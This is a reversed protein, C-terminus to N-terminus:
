TYVAVRYDYANIYDDSSLYEIDVEEGSKIDEKLDYNFSNLFQGDRDYFVVRFTCRQFTTKSANKLKGRFYVNVNGDSSITVDKMIINSFEKETMMDFVPHDIKIRSSVNVKNGDKIKANDLNDFNITGAMEETEVVENSKKIEKTNNKLLGFSLIVFFVVLVGIIIGSTVKKNSLNINKM